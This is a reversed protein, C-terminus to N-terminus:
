AETRSLGLKIASIGCAAIVLVRLWTPAAHSANLFLALGVLFLTVSLPLAIRDSPPIGPWALLRIIRTKGPSSDVLSTIIGALGLLAIIASFILIAFDM